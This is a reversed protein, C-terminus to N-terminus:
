QRRMMRVAMREFQCSWLQAQKIGHDYLAKFRSGAIM